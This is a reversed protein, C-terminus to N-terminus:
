EQPSAVEGQQGGERRRVDPKDEQPHHHAAAHRAVSLPLPNVQLAGLFVCM